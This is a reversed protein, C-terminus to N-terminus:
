RCLRSVSNEGRAYVTFDKSSLYVIGNGVAPTAVINSGTSFSWILSGTYEDLAYLKGDYSPIFVFGDAVIPSAYVIGGTTYNWMQCKSLPCSVPGSALAAGNPGADYHFMAWPYDTTGVPGANLFSRPYSGKQSGDTPLFILLSLSLFVIVGAKRLLIGM